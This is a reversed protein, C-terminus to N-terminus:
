AGAPQTLGFHEHYRAPVVGQREPHKTLWSAVYPCFPLVATEDAEAKAIVAEVLKKAYGQGEFGPRTETHVLALMGGKRGYDILAAVQGDVQWEYRRQDTDDIFAEAM